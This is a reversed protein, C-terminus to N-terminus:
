ECVLHHFWMIGNDKLSNLKALDTDNAIASKIHPDCNIASDLIRRIEVFNEEQYEVPQKEFKVIVKYCALNVLLRARLQNSMDAINFTSELVEIAEHMKNLGRLARAKNGLLRPNNPSIELCENSLILAENSQGSNILDRINQIKVDISNLIIRKREEELEDRLEDVEDQPAYKKYATSVVGVGGFGSLISLGLLKIWSWFAADTSSKSNAEIRENHANIVSIIKSIEEANRQHSSTFLQPPIIIPTEKKGDFAKSSIASFDVSGSMTFIGIALIAAISGALIFGYWGLDIHKPKDSTIASQPNHYRRLKYSGKSSLAQIFGGLAGGSIIVLFFGIVFTLSTPISDM